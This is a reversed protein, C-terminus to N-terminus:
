SYATGVQYLGDSLNSRHPQIGVLKQRDERVRYESLNDSFGVECANRELLALM